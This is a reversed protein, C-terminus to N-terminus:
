RAEGNMHVKDFGPGHCYACAGAITGAMYFNPPNAAATRRSLALDARFLDINKGLLPHADRAGDTALRTAVVEMEDLLHLVEQQEISTLPTDSRRMIVNVREVARAMKWMSAHVDEVDFARPADPPPTPRPREPNDFAQRPACAAVFMALLTVKLFFTM